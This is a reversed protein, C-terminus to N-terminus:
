DWEDEEPISDSHVRVFRPDGEKIVRVAGQIAEEATQQDDVMVVVQIEGYWVRM